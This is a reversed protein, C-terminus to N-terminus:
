QDEVQKLPSMNRQIDDFRWIFVILRTKNM